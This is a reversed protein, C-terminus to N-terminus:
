VECGWGWRASMFLTSFLGMLENWLDILDTEARIIRDINGSSQGTLKRITGGDSYASEFSTDGLPARKYELTDKTEDAYLDALMADVGDIRDKMYAYIRAAEITLRGAFKDLQGTMGNVPEAIYRDGYRAVFLDAASFPITGTHTLGTLGAPLTNGEQSLWEDLTIYREGRFHRM